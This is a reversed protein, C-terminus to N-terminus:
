ANKSRVKCIDCNLKKLNGNDDLMHHCKWKRYDRRKIMLKEIKLYKQYNKDSLLQQKKRWESIKKPNDRFGKQTVHKAWKYAGGTDQPQQQKWYDHFYSTGWPKTPSTYFQIDTVATGFNSTTIDQTVCNDNVDYLVMKFKQNDFKVM